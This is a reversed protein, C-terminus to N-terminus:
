ASRACVLSATGTRITFLVGSLCVLSVGRGRVPGIAAKTPMGIAGGSVLSPNGECVLAPPREKGCIDGSNRTGITRSTACEFAARTLMGIDCRQASWHLGQHAHQPLVSFTVTVQIKAAALSASTAHTLSILIRAWPPSPSSKIFCSTVRYLASRRSHRSSDASQSMVRKRGFIAITYGTQIRGSLGHM